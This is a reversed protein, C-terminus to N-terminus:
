FLVVKSIDVSKEIQDYNPFNTNIFATDAKIEPPLKLTHSIFIEQMEHLIIEPNEQLALTVNLHPKWYYCTYEFSTSIFIKLYETM